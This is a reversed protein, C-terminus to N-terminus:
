WEGTTFKTTGKDFHLTTQGLPGNRHKEIFVEIKGKVQYLM